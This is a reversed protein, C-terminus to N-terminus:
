MNNYHRENVSSQLKLSVDTARANGAIVGNWEQPLLIFEWRRQIIHEVCHKECQKHEM